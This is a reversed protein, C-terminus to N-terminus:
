GLSLVLVSVALSASCGLAVVAGYGRYFSAQESEPILVFGCCNGVIIFAHPQTPTRTDYTACEGGAHRLARVISAACTSLFGILHLYM